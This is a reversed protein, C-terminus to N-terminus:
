MMNLFNACYSLNDKPYVFPQGVSKKYSFAAITRVKSILRAVTIELENATQERMTEPYYSSLSCVMSSLIAMPHATGPYGDFFSLMDRHLDFQKSFLRKFHDLETKNPLKGIILLYATEVFTSQEAMQEIPFGRYRLIGKEGDLFTIDSLCAGTNAFGNDLTIYVTSGRLSSIDIAKEGESGTIVPFEYTKGGCVIQAKEEM